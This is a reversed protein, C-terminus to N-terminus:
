FPIEDDGFSALKSDIEVDEDLSKRALKAKQHNERIRSNNSDVYAKIAKLPELLGSLPLEKSVDPVIEIVPHPSSRDRPNSALKLELMYRTFDGHKARLENLVTSVAYSKTAPLRFNCLVPEKGEFYVLGFLFGYFAAKAKNAKKQEETWSEPISKGLLRGCGIGGRSDIPQEGGKFFITENTTKWTTGDQKMALLRSYYALPRFKVSKSYEGSGILTFTKAPIDNGADDETAINIALSPMKASVDGTGSNLEALLAEEETTQKTQKTM